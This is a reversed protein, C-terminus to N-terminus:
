LLMMLNVSFRSLEISSLFPTWIGMRPRPLMEKEEINIPKKDFRHVFDEKICKLINTKEFHKKIIYSPAQQTMSAKAEFNPPSHIFQAVQRVIADRPGRLRGVQSAKISPEQGLQNKSSVM